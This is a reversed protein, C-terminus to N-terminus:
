HAKLNSSHSIHVGLLGGPTIIAVQQSRLLTPAFMCSVMYPPKPPTLNSLPNIYPTLERGSMLQEYAGWLSRPLNNHLGSIVCHM